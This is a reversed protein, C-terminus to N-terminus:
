RQDFETTWGTGDCHECRHGFSELLGHSVNKRTMQVLGLRSVESVRTKTKDRLLEHKLKSVVQDQNAKQLMDIFDIVIIGGMDRLRLQRVIEEAAELNTKFVVEELSTKRSGTYKGTNVDIVKMAETSEIILYGGSPLWVKRSLAQRLQDTVNYADFLPAFRPREVEAGADPHEREWRAPGYLTVKEAEDATVEALYEAVADYVEPDDIIAGEYDAGFSDRVVKVHLPPEEYVPTLAKATAAREDIREWRKLLRALDAELQEGPIDEANTRVIVGHEAPKVQKIAKRLRDRERDTLKRSIGFVTSNPALVTYRGALSLQMTLRPGKTGMADKTVQVLVKQGPALADEIRPSAGEEIDLDDYLVEGAYLVGNRGRGIDLFAAEMGPLVNQVRAMYINGVLTTASKDTVHYEVLTRDEVVAIQTRTDDVSVLMTKPPGDRLARRVDESVGQVNRRGNSRNRRADLRTSGGRSDGNGGGGKGGKGNTAGKSGGKNGNGGKGAKGGKGRKGKTGTRAKTGGSGDGNGKNGGTSRTASSGSRGGADGKDADGAGGEDARRDRPESDQTGPDSGTTSDADTRPTDARGRRGGGSTGSRRGRGSRPPTGSSDSGQTADGSRGRGRRGRRRRRSSSNSGGATDAGGEAPTATRHDDNTNQSTTSDTM